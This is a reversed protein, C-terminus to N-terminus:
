ESIAVDDIDFVPDPKLGLDFSTPKRSKFEGKANYTNWKGLCWLEKSFLLTHTLGPCCTLKIFNIEGM